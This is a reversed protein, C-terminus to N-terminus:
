KPSGRTGESEARAQAHTQYLSAEIARRRWWWVVLGAVAAVAALEALSRTGWGHWLQALGSESAAPARAAGAVVGRTIAVVTGAVAVGVLVLALGDRPMAFRDRDRQSLRVPGATRTLLGAVVVVALWLGALSVTGIALKRLAASAVLGPAQELGDALSVARSLSAGALQDLVLGGVLAGLSLAILRSRPRLGAQWARVRRAGSPPLPRDDAM